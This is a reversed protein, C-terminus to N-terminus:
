GVKKGEFVYQIDGYGDKNLSHYLVCENTIKELYPAIRKKVTEPLM